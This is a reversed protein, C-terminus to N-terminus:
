VAVCVVSHLYVEPGCTANECLEETRAIVLVTIVDLSGCCGGTVCEEFAVAVCMLKSQYEVDFAARCGGLHLIDVWQVLSRDRLM